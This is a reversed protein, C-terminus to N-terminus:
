VTSKLGTPCYTNIYEPTQPCWGECAATDPRRHRIRPPHVCHGYWIEEYGKKWIYHQRFYNCNKCCKEQKVTLMM